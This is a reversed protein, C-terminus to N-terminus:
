GKMRFFALNSKGLLLNIVAPDMATLSVTYGILRVNLVGTVTNGTNDYIFRAKLNNNNSIAFGISSSMMGGGYFGGVLYIRLYPDIVFSVNRQSDISPNASFNVYIERIM